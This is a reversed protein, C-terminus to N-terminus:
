NKFPSCVTCLGLPNDARSRTCNINRCNRPEPRNRRENDHLQQHIPLEKIRLRRNCITCEVTRSGCDAEHPTLGALMDAASLTSVDGQEKFQQCFRCKILKSPCSTARHFALASLSQFSESCVCDHTTHDLSRHKEFSAPTNGHAYCDPCHWHSSQEGKPLVTNCQQCRLNNRLCFNQHLVLSREPVWSLCNQCQTFGPAHANPKVDDVTTIELPQRAKLEFTADTYGHVGIEVVPANSLEINSAAVVVRKASNASMDSWIHMDVKPKWDESTSLMLDADGDGALVVELNKQRDWQKLKFYMYEGRGVTGSVPRDIVVDMTELNRQKAAKMRQDRTKRANDESMEEIETTVDTDILNVADEPELEDILFQFTTSPGSRISLIEGKTLTTHTRLQSELLAKWDDEIYGAELPRLKVRTAKPLVRISVTLTDGAQLELADGIWSPVGITDAPASFERVGVHTSRNNNPNFIRFTLPQPLDTDIPTSSLLQELATSPLLIKDSPDNQLPYVKFQQTWQLPRPSPSSPPIVNRSYQTSPFMTEDDSIDDPPPSSM